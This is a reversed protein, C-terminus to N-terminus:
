TIFFSRVEDSGWSSCNTRMDLCDLSTQMGVGKFGLQAYTVVRCGSGPLIKFSSISLDLTGGNSYYDNRLDGDSAEHDTLPATCFNRGYASAFNKYGNAGKAGIDRFFTVLPKLAEAEQYAVLEPESGFCSQQGTEITGVCYEGQRGDVNPAVIIAFVFAVPVLLPLLPFKWRRNV